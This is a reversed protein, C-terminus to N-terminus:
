AAAARAPPTIRRRRRTAPRDLWRLLAAGVEPRDLLDWHNASGVLLRDADPVGLAFAPDPHDGFASAVPVLGDGVLREHLGRRGAARPRVADAGSPADPVATAAAARATTATTATAATTAAVVHVAVGAPQPVAVRPGGPVDHASV